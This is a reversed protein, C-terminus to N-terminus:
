YKVIYHLAVSPPMNNHPAGGGKYQVSIGTVSTGTKDIARVTTAGFSQMNFPSGVEEVLYKQGDVMPGHFHGPDTIDHNHLPMEAINLIHSEEGINKDGLIRNTLGVGQGAGIATKGRLDPLNFTSIGNGAGWVTGIVLFLSNYAQRSIAAGDCLLYGAPVNVGAFPLVTGVPMLNQQLGSSLKSATIAGDVVTESINSYITATIRERPTLMQPSLSGVSVEIYPTINQWDVGTPSLLVTFLGQNVDVQQPGSAWYQTQGTVDTIRFSLTVSATMPVGKEKLTGQYTIQPPISAAKAIWVVNLIMMLLLVKKM